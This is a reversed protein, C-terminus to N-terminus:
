GRRHLASICSILSTPCVAGVGDIMEEWSGQFM